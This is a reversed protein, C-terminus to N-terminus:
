IAIEEDLFINLKHRINLCPIAQSLALGKFIINKYSPVYIQNYCNLIKQLLLLVFTVVAPIVVKQYFLEQNLIPYSDFQDRLAKLM